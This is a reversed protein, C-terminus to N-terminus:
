PEFVKVDALEGTAFLLNAYGVYHDHRSVVVNMRARVLATEARLVDTITTLGAEYRDQVIRLGEAAQSEAAESVALRQEAARFQQYARIVEVRIQDAVRDRETQALRKDVLAQAMRAPRERDFLEFSLSAGVAYDASGTTLNRGSSGVSGFLDFQPLYESRREAIRREALEIGADANRYDPRHLFARRVLERADPVDFDKKSLGVTLAPRSDLDAGMTVNLRAFATALDGEAQIQQQRFESLQVQAALLDSEVVVGADLRDRARTVDSEAMRNAQEAVGVAAEAVLVGFYHQITEFRVGQEASEELTLARATEVASQAIRASTKMGDFVPVGAALTTRLNTISNPNNLSPLSFNQPGFRAQELLSGFVFVPNNGRTLTESIRIKPLRGAREEASRHAAQETGLRASKVSPHNELAVEVAQRLGLTRPNQGVADGVFLACSAAALLRRLRM